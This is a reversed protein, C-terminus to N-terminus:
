HYKKWTRILELGDDIKSCLRQAVESNINEDETLYRRLLDTNMDKRQNREIECILLELVTSDHLNYMYHDGTLYIHLFERAKTPTLINELKVVGNFRLKLNPSFGIQRFHKRLLKVFEDIILNYREISLEHGETEAVTIEWNDNASEFIYIVYQDSDEPYIFVYKQDTYECIGSEQFKFNFESASLKTLSEILSNSNEVKTLRIHYKKKTIM